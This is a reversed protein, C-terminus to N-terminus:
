MPNWSPGLAPSWKGLLWTAERAVRWRNDGEVVGVVTKTWLLAHDVYMIYGINKVHPPLLECCERRLALHREGM